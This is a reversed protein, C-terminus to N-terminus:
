ARRVRAPCGFATAMTSVLYSIAPQTRPLDYTARITPTEASSGPLPQCGTLHRNQRSEPWDGPSAGAAAACLTLAILHMTLTSYTM